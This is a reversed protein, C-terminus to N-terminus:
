RSARAQRDLCRAAEARLAAQVQGFRARDASDTLGQKLARAAALARRYAAEAGAADNERVALRGLAQYVLLDRAASPLRRRATEYEARLAAVGTGGPLAARASLRSALLAVRLGARATVLRHSALDDLDAAAGAADGGELGLEARAWAVLFLGAEHGMTRFEHEATDLEAAGAAPNGPRGAVIGRVLAGYARTFPSHDLPLAEAEACLEGARGSDGLEVWALAASLLHVYLALTDGVSQWLAHLAEALNIRDPPASSTLGTRLTQWILRGDTRFVAKGVRVNFPVLNVVALAANLGAPDAAV